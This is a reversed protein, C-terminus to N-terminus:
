LGSVDNPNEDIEQETESTVAEEPVVSPTSEQPGTYLGDRTVMEDDSAQDVEISEGEVVPTTSSYDNGFGENTELPLKDSSMDSVEPEPSSFSPVDENVFPSVEQTVEPLMVEESEAVVEPEEVVVQQEQPIVSAEDQTDILTSTDSLTTEVENSIPAVEEINLGSKSEDESDITMETIDAEDSEEEASVEEGMVGAGEEPLPSIESDSQEDPVSVDQSTEAQQPYEITPDAMTSVADITPVLETDQSQIQDVAGVSVAEPL